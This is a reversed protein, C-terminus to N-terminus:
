VGGLKDGIIKKYENVRALGEENIPVDVPPTWTPRPPIRTDNSNRLWNRFFALYDKKTKGSSRLWDIAKDYEDSVTKRPFKKQLNNIESDVANKFNNITIEIKKQITEKKEKTDRVESSSKDDSKIVATESKIVKKTDDKKIVKRFSVWEDYNKNFKLRDDNRIVLKHDIATQLSRGENQKKMGTMDQFQKHSIVDWTKHWGYTKRIVVDVIQRIEGPIRFRCFAELIEHAIETNGNEKQPCAVNGGKLKFVGNAPNLHAVPRTAVRIFFRM